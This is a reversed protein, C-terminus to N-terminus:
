NIPLLFLDLKKTLTDHPHKSTFTIANATLVIGAVLVYGTDRGLINM